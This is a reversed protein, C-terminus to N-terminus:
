RRMRPNLEEIQPSTVTTNTQKNIINNQNIFGGGSGSSNGAMGKKMDANENSLNTLKAAKIDANVTPLVKMLTPAYTTNSTGAYGANQLATFYQEPTTADLVGAKAYRSNEKLFKVKDDVAEELSKYSRFWDKVKYFTTGNKGPHLKELIERGEGLALFQKAQAETFFEHTIKLKKDGKWSKGAKTGFYNYDGSLKSGYGSETAWQTLIAEPPIKGGLEKSARQAQPYLTTAFAERSTIVGLLAGGAAVKAATKAAETVVPKVIPPKPAAVTPPAPAATPPPAPATEVPKATPPKPAQVPPAEAPPPKAPAQTPPKPAQVPPAEAPPPKAPAQAPPKPAQPAPTETPPPKAPAPPKPAPAQASPASPAQNKQTEARGRALEQDQRKKSAKAMGKMARRKNKIAEKFVNVVEKHHDAKMYENLENFSDLTDQEKIEEERSKEMFSVIKELLETARKSGGMSPNFKEYYSSQRPTYQYQRKGTFYGIDAKSRGMLRGVIAPALKSGGTLFKAINMPDFREKMALSKAKSRDSMAGRFSSIVGQGSALKDTMLNAFGKKRIKAADYYNM